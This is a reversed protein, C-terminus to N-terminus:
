LSDAPRRAPAALLGSSTLRHAAVLEAAANTVRQLAIVHETLRDLGLETLRLM